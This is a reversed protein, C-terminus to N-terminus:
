LLTHDGMKEITMYQEVEKNEEIVGQSPEWQSFFYIKKEEERKALYEEEEEMEELRKIAQLAIGLSKEIERNRLHIRDNEEKWQKLREVEINSPTSKIEELIDKFVESQLALIKEKNSASAKDCCKESHIVM